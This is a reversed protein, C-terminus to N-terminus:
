NGLMEGTAKAVSEFSKDDVDVFTAHVKRRTYLTITNKAEPSIKFHDLGPQSTGAPLFTLPITVKKDAAIKDITGKTEPGGMVVVFARLNKAKNADTLKQIHTAVSAVQAPDNKVFAM